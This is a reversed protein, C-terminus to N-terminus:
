KGRRLRSLRLSLLYFLVFSLLYVQEIKGEPGQLTKFSGTPPPPLAILFFKKKTTKKKKAKKKSKREM